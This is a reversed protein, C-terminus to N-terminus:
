MPWNGERYDPLIPMLLMNEYEQEMIKKSAWGM